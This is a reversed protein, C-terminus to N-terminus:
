QTEEVTTETPTPTVEGRDIADQRAQAEPSLNFLDMNPTPTYPAPTYIVKGTADTETLVYQSEGMLGYIFQGLDSTSDVKYFTDQQNFVYSNVLIESKNNVVYSTGTNEIGNTVNIVAIYDESFMSYDVPQKGSIYATTYDNLQKNQEETLIVKEGTYNRTLSWTAQKVEAKNCGTLLMIGCLIAGIVRKNM